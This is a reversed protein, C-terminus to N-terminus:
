NITILNIVVLYLLPDYIMNIFIENIHITKMKHYYNLTQLFVFSFLLLNILRFYKVIENHYPHNDRIIGASVVIIFLLVPWYNIFKFKVVGRTKNIIVFSFILFLLTPALKIVFSSSLNPFDLMQLFFLFSFIKLVSISM